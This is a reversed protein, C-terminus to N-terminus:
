KRPQWHTYPTPKKTVKTDNISLKDLANIISDLNNQTYNAQKDKRDIKINKLDQIITNNQEKIYELNNTYKKIEALIRELIQIHGILEKQLNSGLSIILDTLANQHPDRTHLSHEFNDDKIRCIFKYSDKNIVKYFKDTFELNM